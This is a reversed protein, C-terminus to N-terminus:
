SGNELNIVRPRKVSPQRKSIWANKCKNARYRDHSVASHVALNFLSLEESSLKAQIDSADANNDLTPAKTLLDRYRGAFTTAIFDPFSEDAQGSAVMAAHVKHAVTYFHNCRVRLNECGPGARIKRRMHDKFYLPLHVHLLQRRAMVQVMWLPLEVKTGAALDDLDAGPDLVKGVGTCGHRLVCPVINEESMISDIDYYDFGEPVSMPDLATM